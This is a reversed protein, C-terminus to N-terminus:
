TAQGTTQPIEVHAASTARSAAAVESRISKMEAKFTRVLENHAAVMDALTPAPPKPAVPVPAPTPEPPEPPPPAVNSVTSGQNIQTQPAANRAIDEDGIARIDVGFLYGIGVIAGVFAAARAEPTTFTSWTLWLGGMIAVSGLIARVSKRSTFLSTISRM